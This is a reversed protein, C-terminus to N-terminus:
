PMGASRMPMVDIMQRLADSMAAGVPTSGRGDEGILVVQLHRAPFIGLAACLRHRIASAM